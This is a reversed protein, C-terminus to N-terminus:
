HLDYAKIIPWWKAVEANQLQALAEPTQQERPPVVLGLDDLRSRVASDGLTEVAAANLKRIAAEPTGHPAWLGFWQAAYFGPLGSEDVTPIEPATALRTASLVALAKVRGSRVFPLASSVQDFLIDVRGAILDQMSQSQGRYPVLQFRTGITEQFYLAALHSPSGTGSTAGTVKDPHSNIWGILEAVNAAPTANSVVLLQPNAPLQAVAAFGTRLDYGLPYIAGNFVHTGLNGLVITYGDPAARQARSVGISGAAGGVNEVVLPQGLSAHM